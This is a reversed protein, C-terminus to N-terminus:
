EFAKRSYYAWFILWLLAMIGVAVGTAQSVDRFQLLDDSFFGMGLLVYLTVFFAKAAAKEMVRRSREDEFPLGKSADKYRRIAFSGFIVLLIAAIVMLGSSYGIDGTNLAYVIITVAVSVALLFLALSRIKGSRNKRIKSTKM